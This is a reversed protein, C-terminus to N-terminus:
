YSPKSRRWKWPPIAQTTSWLGRKKNKASNEMRVWSKCMKKRCYYPYVWALGAGVLESNLTQDGYEVIAVLRKYSDFYVPQVLVKKGYVKKRVLAKAENSFPQNYEPCDVGYLRVEITKKRSVILLSDGDIIKKVVGFFPEKALVPSSLVSLLVAILVFVNGIVIM